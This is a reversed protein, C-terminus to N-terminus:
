PQSVFNQNEKSAIHLIERDGEIMKAFHSAYESEAAEHNSNDQIVLKNPKEKPM